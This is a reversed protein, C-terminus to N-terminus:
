LQYFDQYYKIIKQLYNKKLAYRSIADANTTATSTSEKRFSPFVISRVEFELLESLLTQASSVFTEKCDTKFHSKLNIYGQDM